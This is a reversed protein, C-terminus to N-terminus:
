RLIKYVSGLRRKPLMGFAFCSGNSSLTVDLFHVREGPDPGLDGDLNIELFPRAEPNQSLRLNGAGCWLFNQFSPQHKRLRTDWNTRISENCM